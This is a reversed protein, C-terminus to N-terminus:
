NALEVQPPANGTPSLQVATTAKAGALAPCCVPLRVKALPAIAAVAVTGSDPIPASKVIASEPSDFWVTDLPCVARYM